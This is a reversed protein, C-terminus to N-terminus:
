ATELFEDAFKKLKRMITKITIGAIDGPDALKLDRSIKNLTRKATECQRKAWTRIESNSRLDEVSARTDLNAVALVEAPINITGRPWDEHLDRLSNLRAMIYPLERIEEIRMKSGAAILFLNFGPAFADWYYQDLEEETLVKKEKSRDVDSVMADIVRLFEGRVDEEPALRQLGHIAYGILRSIPQEENWTGEAIQERIDTAFSKPDTAYMDGDIADDIFRLSYYAAQLTLGRNKFFGRFIRFGSIVAWYKGPDRGLVRLQEATIIKILDESPSVPESSGPTLYLGLPVDPMIINAPFLM